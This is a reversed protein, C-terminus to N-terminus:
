RWIEKGASRLAIARWGSLWAAVMLILALGGPIPALSRRTVATRAATHPALAADLAAPGDSLRLFGMGRPGALSRLYDARLSSLHEIGNLDAKGYPNNRPNYDARSEADAPPPGIRAPPM